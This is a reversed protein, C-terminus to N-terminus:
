ARAPLEVSFVTRGPASDVRLEGGHATAIAHVIALGLGTSDEETRGRASDGRVFPEFLEERIDDPVGPGDDAVTLLVREGAVLGTTVTTGAPTHLRANRILNTVAQTLRAEDGTVLVPEEPVELLWGHDPALAHADSVAELVIRTLDVPDQALPVGADLRALLLLEDVLASMRRAESEIREASRRGDANLRGGSRGLLESYGRVSALPTRLEHSADAVFRRLRAESHQRANLASEVRDLLLNLAAGVRGAETSPVADAAPVREIRDVDGSDLRQGAVRSATAVVSDLPRLALRIVLLGAILAIGLAALTALAITWRLTAVTEQVDGLSLGIVSWAGDAIRDLRVRYDGLGPVGVTHAQGDAATSALARAQEITLDAPTGDPQLVGAQVVRTGVVIMGIAGAREGRVFSDVSPPTLTPGAIGDLVFQSRQATAALQTDLRGVLNRELATSSVAGILAGLAALLALVGILLRGRLSLRRM